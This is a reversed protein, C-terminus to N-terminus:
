RGYSVLLNIRSNLLACRPNRASSRRRLVGAAGALAPGQRRRVARAIGTAPTIRAYRLRAHLRGCQLVHAGDNDDVHLDRPGTPRPRRRRAASHHAPRPKAPHRGQRRKARPADDGSSLRQVTHITGDELRRTCDPPGRSSRRPYWQGDIWPRSSARMKRSSARTTTRTRSETWIRKMTGTSTNASRPRPRRRHPVMHQGSGGGPPPAGSALYFQVAREDDKAICARKLTGHRWQRRTLAIRVRQLRGYDHPLHVQRPRAAVMAQAEATERRIAADATAESIERRMARASSPVCRVVDGGRQKRVSPACSAAGSRRRRGRGRWDRRAPRRCLVRGILPSSKAAPRRPGLAPSM